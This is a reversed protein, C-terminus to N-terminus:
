SNLPEVLIQNSSIKVIKVRTGSDVYNGLTTVEVLIGGLEAKGIPRLASVAIGEEGIKLNDLMGENVKSKIASKLAFQEWPKSRFIWVFLLASVVSTGGVISWGAQNGFYTFSLYLGVVLIGFGVFGAVSTGPIFIVEIVLLLLGIGILSLVIFWEM